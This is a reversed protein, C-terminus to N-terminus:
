RLWFAMVNIAANSGASSPYMTPYDCRMQVSATVTNDDDGLNTLQNSWTAQATSNTVTGAANAAHPMAVVSPGPNGSVMVRVYAMLSDSGAGAVRASCFGTAFLLCRTAWLPRVLSVSLIDVFLTGLGFTTRTDQTMSTTTQNAIQNSLLGMSSANAAISATMNTLATDTSSKLTSVTDDVYRGWQEAEPPLNRRPPKPQM